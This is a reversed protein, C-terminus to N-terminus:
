FLGFCGRWLLYVSAPLCWMWAVCGCVFVCKQQPSDFTEDYWKVARVCPECMGCTRGDKDGDKSEEGEGDDNIMSGYSMSSPPPPRYVHPGLPPFAKGHYLANTSADSHAPSGNDDPEPTPSASDMGFQRAKSSSSSGSEGTSDATSSTTDSATGESDTNDEPCTYYADPTSNSPLLPMTEDPQM